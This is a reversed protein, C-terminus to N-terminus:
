AHDPPEGDPRRWSLLAGRAEPESMGLLQGRVIREALDPELTGGRYLFDMARIVYQGRLATALERGCGRPVLGAEAALEAAETHCDILQGVYQDVQAALAKDSPGFMVAYVFRARDPEDRSFAVATEVVRILREIPDLSRDAVLARMTEVLTTLPRTLLEHALAEKSKFHYYLTPCTVGAAEVIARVPTADYGREAFLRAAVRSVLRATAHSELASRGCSDDWDQGADVADGSGSIWM